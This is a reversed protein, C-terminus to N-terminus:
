QDRVSTEQSNDQVITIQKQAMDEMFKQSKMLLGDVRFTQDPHRLAPIESDLDISPPLTVSFSRQPPPPTKPPEFEPPTCAIFMVFQFVVLVQISARRLDRKNVHSDSPHCGCM